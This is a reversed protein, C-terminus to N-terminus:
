LHWGALQGEPGALFLRRGAVVPATMIPEFSSFPRRAQAVRPQEQDLALHYVMGEYSVLVAWQPGLVPPLVCPQPVELLRQRGSPRHLVRLRRGSCQIVHTPGAAFSFCTEQQGPWNRQLTGAQYLWLEGQQGCVWLDEGCTGLSLAPAPLELSLLREGTEGALLQLSTQQLVWLGSRSWALALCEGKWPQRWAPQLGSPVIRQCVLESGALWSLRQGSNALPSALRGSTQFRHNRDFRCADGRLHPTLHHVEVENQRLTVLLNDLLAAAEVGPQVPLSQLREVQYPSWLDVRGTQRLAALLGHNGLLCEIPEDEPASWSEALETHAPLALLPRLDAGCRACFNALLLGAAGCRACHLALPSPTVAPHVTALWFGAQM